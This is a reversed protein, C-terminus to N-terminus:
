TIIKLSFHVSTTKLLVLNRGVTGIPTHVYPTSFHHKIHFRNVFDQLKNSMFASADDTKITRPVGSEEIIMNLLAMATKSNCAKTVKAWPWKSCNDVAVLIFKKHGKENIIPGLFDFQIEDSVAKTPPLTNKETKPLKSNLNKGAQFCVLCDKANKELDHRKGPWYVHDTIAVMKHLSAHDSHDVQM